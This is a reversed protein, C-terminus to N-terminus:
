QNRLSERGRPIDVIGQRALFSIATADAVMQDVQADDGLLHEFRRQALLIFLGHLDQRAFVQQRSRYLTEATVMRLGVVPAGQQGAREDGASAEVLSEFERLLREGAVLAQKAGAM